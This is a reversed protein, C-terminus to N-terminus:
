KKYNKQFYEGNLLVGQLKQINMINRKLSGSQHHM